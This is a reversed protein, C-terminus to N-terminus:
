RRVFTWTTERDDSSVTAILKDGRRRYEIRKPFDHEPNEFVAVNKMLHTLVFATRTQESPTAVYTLVGDVDVIELAETSVVEGSREFVGSGIWRGDEHRWTETTTRDGDVSVWQGELWSLDHTTRCAALLFFLIAISRRILRAGQRVERGGRGRRGARHDPQM